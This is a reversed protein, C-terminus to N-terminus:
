EFRDEPAKLRIIDGGDMELKAKDKRVLMDLAERLLEEKAGHWEESRKGTEEKLDFSVDLENWIRAEAYDMFKIFQRRENAPFVGANEQPSNAELTSEYSVVDDLQSQYNQPPEPRITLAKAIEQIMQHVDTQESTKFANRNELPGKLVSKYDVGPGVVPILLEDMGWRAGLEFLVYHSDISAITLLAVFVHADKIDERLQNDTQAGGPLKCGPVTTARIRSKSLKLSSCLLEVFRRILEKDDSSHSIFVDLTKGTPKSVNVETETPISEELLDAKAEVLHALLENELISLARNHDEAYERQKEDQDIPGGLITIPVHLKISFDKHRQFQLSDRGFVDLITDVIRSDLSEIKPDDYNTTSPDLDRLDSIRREIKKIARDVRGLSEFQNIQRPQRNEIM